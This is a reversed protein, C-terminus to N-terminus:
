KITNNKQTTDWYINIYVISCCKPCKTEFNGIANPDIETSAVMITNPDSNVINGLRQKVKSPCAPCRVMIESNM